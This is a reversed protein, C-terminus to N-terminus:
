CFKGYTNKLAQQEVKVQRAQIDDESNGEAMVLKQLKEALNYPFYMREITPFQIASFFSYSTEVSQNTEKCVAWM